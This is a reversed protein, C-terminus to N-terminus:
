ASHTPMILSACAIAALSKLSEFMFACGQKLSQLVVLHHRVEDLFTMVVELGNSGYVFNGELPYFPM